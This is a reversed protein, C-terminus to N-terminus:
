PSVADLVSGLSVGQIRGYLRVAQADTLSAIADTVIRKMELRKTVDDIEDELVFKVKEQFPIPLLSRLAPEVTAEEFRAFLARIITRQGEQQTALAPNRIVYTWTLEKLIRTEMKFEPKIRAREDGGPLIEIGRIYRGILWSTTTRLAARQESTGTYREVIPFTSFLSEVVSEVESISHKPAGNDETWREFARELFFDTERTNRRAKKKGPVTERKIRHLPILGARYFDEVDHVAYAIDDAWDMIEAELSRIEGKPGFKRVWDFDDKETLFYGWKDVETRYSRPYKLIANLTARTLNLGCVEPSRVCLKTLIRFSQANGDYGDIPKLKKKTPNAEQRVLSDLEEEAVHGFPPHGLDHALAAAEAVEPDLGGAARIVENPTENILLEALRRAIQAAELTHTLRNHFVHLENATAVQTVGGLRRLSSTYLIRDRDRASKERQDEPRDNRHRRANRRSTLLKESPPRPM